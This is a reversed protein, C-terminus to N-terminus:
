EKDGFAKEEEQPPSKKGCQVFIEGVGKRGEL